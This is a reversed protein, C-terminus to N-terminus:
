GASLVSDSGVPLPADHQVPARCGSLGAAAVSFGALTLFDRRTTKQASSISRLGGPFEGTIHPGHHLEEPSKWYVPPGGIQVLAPHASKCSPKNKGSESNHNNM